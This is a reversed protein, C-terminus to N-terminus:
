PRAYVDRLPLLDTAGTRDYQFNCLRANVERRVPPPTVQSTIKTRTHSGTNLFRGWEYVQGKFFRVWEYVLDYSIIVWEYVAWQNKTGM